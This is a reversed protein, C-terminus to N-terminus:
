FRYGISLYFRMKDYRNIKSVSFNIPGLVTKVRVNIGAGLLNIYAESYSAKKTFNFAYGLKEGFDNISNAGYLFNVYPQLLVKPVVEWQYGIHVSTFVNASIEGTKLGYFNLYSSRINPDQGGLQYYESFSHSNSALFDTTSDIQFSYKYLNQTLLGANFLYFFSQQKNVYIFHNLQVTIRNSPHYLINNDFPTRSVTGISDEEVLEGVLRDKTRLALRNELTFSMGKKPFYLNDLTNRQYSAQLGMFNSQIRKAIITNVQSNVFMPKYINSEAQMGLTVTSQVNINYAFGTFFTNFNSKYTDELNGNQTYFRQKITESVFSSYWSFRSSNMYKRYNLRYKPSEALDISAVLRSNAGLWNRATFNLVIGAGLETDYHLSGKFAIKYDPVAHIIVNSKGDGLAEVTYYVKSLYRNSYADIMMADLEDLNTTDGPSLRIRKLIFKQLKPASVGEILLNNVIISEQNDQFRKRRYNGHFRRFQKELEQLQPLVQKSVAIGKDIIRNSYKFDGAGFELMNHTLDNFINCLAIDESAENIGYFSSSQILLKNITNMEHEEFLRGGTYSGIVFDAGMEKLQRVPFNIMVGGDVLLYNNWKIPKFVTPISMSARMALALSGSDLIVPKMTLIDVAMCKFPIPLKNFDTVNNVHHTLRTFLNQIAQGDLIGTFNLRGHEFPIEAIYKTYEDKEDMNIQDAPVYQNLIIEWDATRAISDIQNGTYGAAYLGGIVSGMSTGTIFDIKIGLSDILKLLGIHALGKAGGGSLCLGIKDNEKLVIPKAEEQAHCFNSFFFLLFLLPFLQRM